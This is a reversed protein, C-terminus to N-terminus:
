SLVAELEENAAVDLREYPCVAAVNRDLLFYQRSETTGEVAYDSIDPSREIADYRDLLGRVMKTASERYRPDKFVVDFIFRPQYVIAFNPAFRSLRQKHAPTQVAFFAEKGDFNMCWKEDETNHPINEPWPQPDLQRLRKLFSWFLLHYEEVTREKTPPPCILVLSINRGRKHLIKHYELIAKAGVKATEIDNLDESSLFLFDLENSKYGKTGYICPFTKDKAILARTFDDYAQRQWTDTSYTEEVQYRSTTNTSPIPSLPQSPHTTKGTSFNFMSPTLSKPPKPQGPM